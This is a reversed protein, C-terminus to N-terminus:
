QCQQEFQSLLLVAWPTNQCGGAFPGPLGAWWEPPVCVRGPVIVQHSNTYNHIAIGLQKLNTACQLRRAAERASQVAPFVLAIVLAIIAITVLVEILTFGRRPTATPRIMLLSEGEFM